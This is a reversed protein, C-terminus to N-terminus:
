GSHQIYFFRWASSNVPVKGFNTLSLNKTLFDQAQLKWGDARLRVGEIGWSDMMSVVVSYRFCEAQLSPRSRPLWVQAPHSVTESDCGPPGQQARSLQASM